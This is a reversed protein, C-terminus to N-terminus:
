ASAQPPPSCDEAEGGRGEAGDERCGGETSSRSWRPAVKRTGQSSPPPREEAAEDPLRYQVGVPSRLPRRAPGHGPHGDCPKTTEADLGGGRRWICSSGIVPLPCRM